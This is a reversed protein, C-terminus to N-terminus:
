ERRRMRVVLLLLLPVVMSLPNGSSGQAASCALSTETGPQDFNSIMRVDIKSDDLLDAFPITAGLDEVRAGDETTKMVDFSVEYFGAPIAEIEYTGDSGVEDRIVTGNRRDQGRLIITTGESREASEADGAFVTGELTVERNPVLVTVISAPECLSLTGSRREFGAASARWDYTGTDLEFSREEGAQLQQPNPGEDGELIFNITRDVAM